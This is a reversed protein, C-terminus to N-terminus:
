LLKRMYELLFVKPAVWVFIANLTYIAAPISFIITTGWKICLGATIEEADDCTKLYKDVRYQIMIIISIWFLAIVTYKIGHYILLQHVVDPLEAQLFDSISSGTELTKQILDAIAQDITNNTKTSM